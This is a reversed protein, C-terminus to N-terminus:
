EKCISIIRNCTSINRRCTSMKTKLKSPVCLSETILSKQKRPTSLLYINFKIENRIDFTLCCHFFVSHEEIPNLGTGQLICGVPGAFTFFFRLASYMYRKIALTCKYVAGNPLCQLRQGYFGGVGGM